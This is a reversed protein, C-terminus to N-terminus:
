SCHSNLGFGAKCLYVFCLTISTMLVHFMDSILCKYLLCDLLVVLQLEHMQFSIEPTMMLLLNGWCCMIMCSNTEVLLGHKHEYIAALSLYHKIKKRLKLM